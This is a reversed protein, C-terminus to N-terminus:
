NSNLITKLNDLEKVMQETIMAQKDQKTSVEGLVISLRQLDELRAQMLTIVKTVSLDRERNYDKEKIYGRLLIVNVIISFILGISNSAIITDLFDTIFGDAQLLLHM